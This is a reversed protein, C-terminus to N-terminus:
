VAVMGTATRPLFSVHGGHLSDEDGGADAERDDDEVPLEAHRQALDALLALPLLLRLRAFGAAGPAGLLETKRASGESSGFYYGYVDKVIGVLAGILVLLVDKSPESMPQAFLTFICGLFGITVLAALWGKFSGKEM